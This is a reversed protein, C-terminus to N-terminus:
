ILTVDQHNAFRVRDELIQMWLILSHPLLVLVDTICSFVTFLASIVGM